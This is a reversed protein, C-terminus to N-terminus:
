MQNKKRMEPLFGNVKLNKEFFMILGTYQRLKAKKMRSKVFYERIGKKRQKCGISKISSCILFNYIRCHTAVVYAILIIIWLLVSQISEKYKIEEWIFLGCQWLLLVVPSSVICCADM